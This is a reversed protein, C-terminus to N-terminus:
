SGRVTLTREPTNNNYAGVAWYQAYYLSAHPVHVVGKLTNFQGSSPNPVLSWSNGDFQEIVAPYSLPSSIITSGVAVIDSASAAAIGTLSSTGNVAPSAVKRVMSPSFLKRAAQFAPYVIVSSCIKATCSSAGM